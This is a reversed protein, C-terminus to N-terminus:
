FEIYSAVAAFDWQVGRCGFVDNCACEIIADNTDESYKGSARVAALRDKFLTEDGPEILRFVYIPIVTHTGCEDVNQQEVLLLSTTASDHKPKKAHMKDLFKGLIGDWDLAHSMWCYCASRATEISVPLDRRELATTIIDDTLSAMTLQPLEYTPLM